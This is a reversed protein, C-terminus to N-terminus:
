ALQGLVAPPEVQDPRHMALEEEWDWDRGGASGQDRLYFGGKFRGRRLQWVGRDLVRTDMEDRPICQGALPGGHMRFEDAM